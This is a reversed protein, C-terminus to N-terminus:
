IEFSNQVHEAKFTLVPYESPIILLSSVNGELFINIQAFYKLITGKIYAQWHLSGSLMGIQLFCAEKDHRRPLPACPFNLLCVEGRLLVVM